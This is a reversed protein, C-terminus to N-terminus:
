RAGKLGALAEFIELVAYIDRKGEGRAQAVTMMQRAAATIPLPTADRRGTDLIMDVDKAATDIDSPPADFRRAKITPARLTLQKSGLPGDELIDIMTALDLGGRQGFALAEGMMASTVGVIMSHVLKLYAAAEAEGVYHSRAAMPLFVSRARDFDAATGSAFLSLGGQEALGVSGAVKGCLYSIGRRRAEEAVAASAAPSVTSLDVYLHGPEAAALVGEPGLAVESLVHDNLIISLTIDARRATDGPTSGIEAGKAALAEARATDRDCGIVPFGAKLLNMAM